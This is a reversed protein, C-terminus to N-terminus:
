QEDAALLAQAAILMAVATEEDINQMDLSKRADPPVIADYLEASMIVYQRKRYRSLSVPAKIADRLIADTKRQLDSTSYAGSAKSQTM